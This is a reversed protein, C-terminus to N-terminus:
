DAGRGNERGGNPASGGGPEGSTGGGSLAGGSPETGPPNAQILHAAEKAKKQTEKFAREADDRLHQFIGALNVTKRHDYRDLVDNLIGDTIGFGLARYSEFQSESFWQNITSEHPFTPNATAYAHIGADEVGHYYGQHVPDRSIATAATAAPYDIEGIAHYPYGQGIIGKKPRKKIKDLGHFRIRVGLDIAIKRVANGLDEFGYDQDAGADVAIIHRCRRRVMEYLGLNEFHGGDSLYVYPAEDTTLGFTEEILPRLAFSPGALRYTDAGESGPNGFWWGLRVNFLALLFTIAPSSHYGMNPSAAAGSIAM